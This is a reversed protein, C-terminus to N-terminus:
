LMKWHSARSSGDSRRRRSSSRATSSSRRRGASTRRILCNPAGVASPGGAAARSRDRGGGRPHRHEVLAEVLADTAVVPGRAANVLLAGRKM